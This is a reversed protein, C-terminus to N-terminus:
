GKVCQLVSLQEWNLALVPLAELFMQICTKTHAYTRLNRSDIGLRAIAPGYPLPM